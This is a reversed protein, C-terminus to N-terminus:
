KVVSRPSCPDPRKIIDDADVYGDVTYAISAGHSIFIATLSKFSSQVSNEPSPITQGERRFPRLRPNITEIYQVDLLVLV